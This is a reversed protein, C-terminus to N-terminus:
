KDFIGKNEVYGPVISLVPSDQYFEGMRKDVEQVFQDLGISRKPTGLTDRIHELLPVIQKFVGEKSEEADVVWHAKPSEEATRDFETQIRDQYALTKADFQDTLKEAASVRANFVEADGSMVITKDPMLGIAHHHLQSLTFRSLGEGAGQYAYTSLVYRDCLVVKGAELAPKIVTEVHQVRATMYLMANALPTLKEGNIIGSRCLVRLENAAPTGGPEHTRIYDVNNEKLWQEISDCATSKGCGGIGEVALLYGKYM